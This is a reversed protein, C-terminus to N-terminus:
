KISHKYILYIPKRIFTYVKCSLAQERSPVPKISIIMLCIVYGACLLLIKAIYEMCSRM